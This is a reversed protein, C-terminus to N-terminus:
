PEVRMSAGGPLQSSAFGLHTVDVVPHGGSLLAM